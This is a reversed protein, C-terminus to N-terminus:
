DKKNSLEYKDLEALLKDSCEPCVSHSFEAESHEMIYSEIQSWYGKDDRVKKCSACIPLLGSLRKIKALSQELNRNALTLEETRIKVLEEMEQQYRALDKSMKNFASALMELEDKSNVEVFQSYDGNSVAKTATALAKIPGVFHRIALVVLIIAIAIAISTVITAIRFHNTILILAQSIPQEAVVRLTQDGFQLSKWSIIVDTGSLGKAAGAAKPLDATTGSLVVSPNPHAVVRNTQDVVYAVSKGPIKIDALLDWIKKFRLNVAMVYALQGTRLDVLPLSITVLPEQITKDFHIQSFYPTKNTAPSLFEKRNARSHLDKQFFVKDRSLRILEQGEPNILALDQYVQEDFLINNFIASQKAPDLLEEGYLKHVLLLHYTHDDIFLEIQSGISSSVQYLLEHSQQELYVESHRTLFISILLLPGVALSIFIVLLRLRLSTFM